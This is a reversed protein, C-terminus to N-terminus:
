DNTCECLPCHADCRDQEHWDQEVESLRSENLVPYGELSEAADALVQMVAANDPNVLHHRIWGVAWHSAIMADWSTMDPDAAELRAELELANATELADSDRTTQCITALVWGGDTLREDSTGFNHMESAKITVRM